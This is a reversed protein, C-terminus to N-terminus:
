ISNLNGTTEVTHSGSSSELIVKQSTKMIMGHEETKTVIRKEITKTITTGGEQIDSKLTEERYCTILCNNKNIHWKFVHM